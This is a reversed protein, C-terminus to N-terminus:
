KAPEADELPPPGEDDDDGDDIEDGDAEAGESGLDGLGAGGAGLNAMMQQMDLGGMGPMGGMGGMGPMGGMGGMGPMGGMGGMDGMGGGMGGLDEDPEADDQEDEDVWKSFDTKIFPLKLKEKTLRPWYEATHEKKRLVVVFSRSSLSRKSEEPVVEAFLDLSFAYSRKETTGADAKFSISTPTLTYEVSKDNIDPLNVTLFVVNKEAETTSSRQAWLVEPHTSM